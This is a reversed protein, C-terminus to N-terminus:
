LMILKIAFVVFGQIFVTRAVNRSTSSSTLSSTAQVASSDRSQSTGDITSSDATTADPGDEGIELSSIAPTPQPTVLAGPSQMSLTTNMQTTSSPTPTAVGMISAYQAAVSAPLIPLDTEEWLVMMQDHEVYLNSMTTYIDATSINPDLLFGMPTTVSSTCLYQPDLQSFGCGKAVRARGFQGPEM